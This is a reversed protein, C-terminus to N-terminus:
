ITNKYRFPLIGVYHVLPGLNVVLISLTLCDIRSSLVFSFVSYNITWIYRM